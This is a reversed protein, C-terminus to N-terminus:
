ALHLTEMPPQSRFSDAGRARCKLRGHRGNGQERTTARTHRRRGLEVVRVIDPWGFTTTILSCMTWM